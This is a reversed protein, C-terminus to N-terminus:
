WPNAPRGGKLEFLDKPLFSEGRHRGTGCGRRPHFVRQFKRAGKGKGGAKEEGGRNGASMNFVKRGTGTDNLMSVPLKRKKRERVLQFACSLQGSRRTTTSLLYPRKAELCGISGNEKKDRRRHSFPSHAEKKEQQCFPPTIRGGHRNKGNEL